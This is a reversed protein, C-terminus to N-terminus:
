SVTLQLGHLGPYLAIVVVIPLIFFVVPV